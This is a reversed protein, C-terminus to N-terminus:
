FSLMCANLSKERELIFLDDNKSQLEQRKYVDLHTYSVPRSYLVFSIIELYSYFYFKNFRVQIQDSLTRKSIKEFESKIQVM